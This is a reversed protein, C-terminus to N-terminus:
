WFYQFQKTTKYRKGYGGSYQRTASCHLRLKQKHWSDRLTGWSWSFDRWNESLFFLRNSSNEWNNFKTLQYSVYFEWSFYFWTLNRFGMGFTLRWVKNLYLELLSKYKVFKWLEASVFFLLFFSFGTLNRFLWLKNVIWIESTPKNQRTKHPTSDRLVGMLFGTLNQLVRWLRKLRVFKRLPQIVIFKWSFERWIRSLDRVNLYSELVRM